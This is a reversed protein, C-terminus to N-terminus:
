SAAVPQWLAPVADPTWGPQSTHAQLCKYTQGNYTVVDGVAYAVGAGSWDPPGSTPPVVTMDKWWRYSQPDAPDGPITTNAAILSMWTKGNYTVTWGIPYADTAGTPQVWAEGRSVGQAALVKANIHSIMAPANAITARKTQEDRIQSSLDTLEDDTYTSLDVPVATM